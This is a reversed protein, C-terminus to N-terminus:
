PSPKWAEARKEIDFIEIATLRKKFTPISFDLWYRHYHQKPSAELTKLAILSWYYAEKYNAQRNPHKKPEETPAYYYALQQQADFRGEDAAKMLSSKIFDEAAEHINDEFIKLARLSACGSTTKYLKQDIKATITTMEADICEEPEKHVKAIYTYNSDNLSKLLKQIQATSVSGEVWNTLVADKFRIRGDGYIEITYPARPTDNMSTSEGQTRSLTIEEFTSYIIEAPPFKQEYYKRYKERYESLPASNSATGTLTLFCLLAFALLKRLEKVSM